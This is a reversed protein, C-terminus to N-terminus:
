DVLYTWVNLKTLGYRKLYSNLRKEFNSKLSYLVDLIKQKEEASIVRYKHQNNKYEFDYQNRFVQYALIKTNEESGCYHCHVIVCYAKELEEIEYNIKKMNEQIFYNENTRAYDARNEAEIDEEVTSHGYMGAGFCFSTEINLNDIAIMEGNDLFIVDYINKFLYECMRDDWINEEKIQNIYIEKNAKRIKVDDKLVVKTPEEVLYNANDLIKRTEEETKFASWCKNKNFWKFNNEKLTKLVNANPKSNFYVEIAGYNNTKLEYNM